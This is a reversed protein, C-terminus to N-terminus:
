PFSGVMTVGGPGFGFRVDARTPPADRVVFLVAGVVAGIGVGLAILLLGGEGWLFVLTAAVAVFMGVAALRAGSKATKVGSLRKIGLVFLLAAGMFVLEIGTVSLNALFPM